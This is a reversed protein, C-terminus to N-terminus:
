GAVEVVESVVCAEAGRAQAAQEFLLCTEGDDFEAISLAHQAEELLIFHQALGTM